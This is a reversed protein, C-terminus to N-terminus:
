GKSAVHGNEAEEHIEENLRDTLHKLMGGIKREMWKYNLSDGKTDPMCWVFGGDKLPEMTIDIGHAIYITSKIIRAYEHYAHVIKSAVEQADMSPPVIIMSLVSDRLIELKGHYRPYVKHRGM